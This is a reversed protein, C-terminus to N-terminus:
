RPPERDPMGDDADGVVRGQTFRDLIRELDSAYPAGDREMTRQLVRLQFALLRVSTLDRVRVTVSATPVAAM